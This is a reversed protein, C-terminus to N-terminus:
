TVRKSFRFIYNFPKIIFGMSMPTAVDKKVRVIATNENLFELTVSARISSNPGASMVTDGAKGEGPKDHRLIQYLQTGFSADYDIVGIEDKLLCSECGAYGNFVVFFATDNTKFYYFQFNGSFKIKKEDVEEINMYGRHSRAKPEVNMLEWKGAVNAPLLLTREKRAAMTAKETSQIPIRKPTPGRLQTPEEEGKKQTSAPDIDPLNAMEKEVVPQQYIGATDNQKRGEETANVTEKKSTVWYTIGVAAVILFAVLMLLAVPRKLIPRQPKIFGEVSDTQVIATGACKLERILNALGNDYGATFDIHQLRKIRFPTKSDKYIVPIVMKKEDMAYYVEDLVNQSVVSKDSEIFLLCDCTELAKEIELDWESGARIDQQDIWVNFGEKQLDVALKLAFDSADARSYSFFINKLTM